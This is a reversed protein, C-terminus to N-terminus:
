GEDYEELHYTVDVGVFIAYGVLLDHDLNAGGDEWEYLTDVPLGLYEAVDALLIGKENRIRVLRERLDYRYERIHRKHAQVHERNLKRM